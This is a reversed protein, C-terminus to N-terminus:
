AHASGRRIFSALYELPDANQIKVHHQKWADLKETTIENYTLNVPPSTGAFSYGVLRLHWFKMAFAESRLVPLHEGAAIIEALKPAPLGHWDKGPGDYGNREAEYMAMRLTTEQRGDLGM